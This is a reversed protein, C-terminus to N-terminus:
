DYDAAIMRPLFICFLCTFGAAIGVGIRTVLDISQPLLYIGFPVGGVAFIGTWGLLMPNNTFPELLISFMSRPPDSM